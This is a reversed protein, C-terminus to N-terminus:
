APQWGSKLWYCFPKAITSLSYGLVALFKRKGLKDSLWGSFISGTKPYM